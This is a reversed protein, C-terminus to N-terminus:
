RGGLQEDIWRRLELLVTPDLSGMLDQDAALLRQASRSLTSQERRRRTTQSADLRRIALEDMNPFPFILQGGDALISNIEREARLMNPGIGSIRLMAKARSIATFAKNRNEIPDVYDFLSDFATIFVIPAENGKARRLTSLTVQDKLGFEWAEQVLGPITSDVNREFLLRQLDLFMSRVDIRISTVIIQEPRVGEVQILNAIEDALSGLEEGRSGHTRVRILPQAGSYIERFRNPSNQTPRNIVMHDGPRFAGDIVEYGFSEWSTANDIMQVPAAGERKIGLGIGHALVLVERPCRYSRHLVFDKEIGAPYEGDLDVLPQGGDDTGFMESTSPTEVSSLNQLEDYAFYVRHEDAARQYLVRFFEFPFDQAEDVLIFDYFPPVGITLAHKCCARFPVARDMRKADDLTYARAGVEACIDYYVGPRRSAGWAHRIHLNDWNPDKDALPRYFREILDQLQNYLSQTSFTVLVKSDPYQLHINAAKLALIVTKGTGALGRIRQPGPAMQVAVKHQETDLLAIQRELKRVADGVRNSTDALEIQAKNLPAVNQVISRTM